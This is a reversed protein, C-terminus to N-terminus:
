GFRSIGWSCLVLSIELALPFTDRCSLVELIKRPRYERPCHGLVIKLTSPIKSASPISKGIGGWNQHLVSM